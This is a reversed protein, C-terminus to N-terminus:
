PAAISTTLAARDGRLHTFSLELPRESPDYLMRERVLIPAGPAIQLLRATRADCPVAEVTLDVRAVGIDFLKPAEQGEEANGYV